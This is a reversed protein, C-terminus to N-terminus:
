ATRPGPSRGHVGVAPGAGCLGLGGSARWGSADENLDDALMIAAISAQRCGGPAEFSQSVAM